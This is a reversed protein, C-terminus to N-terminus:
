ARFSDNMLRLFERWYLVRDASCSPPIGGRLASPGAGAPARCNGPNKFLARAALSPDTARNRRSFLPSPSQAPSRSGKPAWCADSPDRAVQSSVHDAAPCASNIFSRTPGSLFRNLPRIRRKKQTGDAGRKRSLDPSQRRTAPPTRPEARTARSPTVTRRADIGRRPNAPPM